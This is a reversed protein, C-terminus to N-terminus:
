CRIISNSLNKLRHTIGKMGNSSCSLGSEKSMSTRFGCGRTWTGRMMGRSHTSAVRM